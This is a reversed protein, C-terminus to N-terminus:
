LTLGSVTAGATLHKAHRKPACRFLNHDFHRVTVAFLHELDCCISRPDHPVVTEKTRRADLTKCFM